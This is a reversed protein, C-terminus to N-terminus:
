IKIGLIKPKVKYDKGFIYNKNRRPDGTPNLDEKAFMRNKNRRTKIRPKSQPIHDPTRSSHNSNNLNVVPNPSVDRSRSSHNSNLNVVPNPSVDRSRSSHNSNNLNVIPNPDPIFPTLVTKPRPRSVVYGKETTKKEVGDEYWIDEYSIHTFYETDYLTSPHSDIRKRTNPYAYQIQWCGTEPRSYYEIGGDIPQRYEEREQMEMAYEEETLKFRPIWASGFIDLSVYFDNMYNTYYHLALNERFHLIQYEGKQEIREILYLLKEEENVEFYAKGFVFDVYKTVDKTEMIKLPPFWEGVNNRKPPIFTQIYGKVNDPLKNLLVPNLMRKLGKNKRTKPPIAGKRSSM